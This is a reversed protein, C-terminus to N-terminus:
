FNRKLAFIIEDMSKPRERHDQALCRSVLRKVESPLSLREILNGEAGAAPLQGSAAHVFIRAWSYADVSLDLERDPNGVEPAQYPAGRRVHDRVTASGDSLKSLELDTLVITGKERIVISAPSLCRCIIV